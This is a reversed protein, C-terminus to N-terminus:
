LDLAFSVVDASYDVDPLLAELIGKRRDADPGSAWATGRCEVRLQGSISAVTVRFTDSVGVSGACLESLVLKLDETVDASVGFATGVSASFLRVTALSAPEAPV